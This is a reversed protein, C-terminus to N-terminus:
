KNIVIHSRSILCSRLLVTCDILKMLRADCRAKTSIEIFLLNLIDKYNVLNGNCLM